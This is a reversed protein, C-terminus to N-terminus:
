RTMDWSGIEVAQGVFQALGQRFGERFVGGLSDAGFRCCFFARPEHGAM